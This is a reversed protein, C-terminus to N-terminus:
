ALSQAGLTEKWWALQRIQESANKRHKAHPLTVDLYRDIAEGLTRKRPASSPVHEGTDLKHEISWAWEEAESKKAFSKTLFPGNQRRVKM